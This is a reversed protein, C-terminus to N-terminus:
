TGTRLSEAEKGKTECEWQGGKERSADSRGGPVWLALARGSDEVSGAAGDGANNVGIEPAPQPRWLTDPGRTLSCSSVDPKGRDGLPPSAERERLGVAEEPTSSLGLLGPAM